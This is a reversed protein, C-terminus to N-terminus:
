SSWEAWARRFYDGLVSNWATVHPATSGETPATRLEAIEAKVAADDDTLSATHDFLELLTGAAFDGNNSGRTLDAPKFALARRAPLGIALRFVHEGYAVGLVAGAASDMPYHVGAVTRNAAIRHAVRFVQASNKVGHYASEGTMLRHLLTAIAYAEVAHGSPFSSHDPTQIVPQVQSSVDIPRPTRAYHKVVMETTLAMRYIATVLELTAEHRNNDLYAVSGATPGCTPM